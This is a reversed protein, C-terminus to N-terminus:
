IFTSKEKFLFKGLDVIKELPTTDMVQLTTTITKEILIDTKEFGQSEDKLWYKFVFLFQIWMVNEQTTSQFQNLQNSKFDVSKLELSTIFEIFCDKLQNLKALDKPSKIDARVYSRNASLNEFFTFYFSLLKDQKSFGQYENNENLTKVTYQCFMAYIEKQLSAYSSFHKYFDEEPIDNKTCLSYISKPLKNKRAVYNMFAEVIKEKTNTDTMIKIKVEFKCYHKLLLM